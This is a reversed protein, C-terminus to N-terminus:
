YSKARILSRLINKALSGFGEKPAKNETPALHIKRVGSGYGNSGASHGM